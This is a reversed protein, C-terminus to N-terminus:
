GSNRLRYSKALIIDKETFEVIKGIYDTDNRKIFFCQLDNTTVIAKSKTLSIVMGHYKM